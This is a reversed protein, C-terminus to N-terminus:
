RVLSCVFLYWRWDGADALMLFVCVRLCIIFLLVVSAPTFMELLPVVCACVCVCNVFAVVFSALLFLLFSNALLVSPSSPVCLLVIPLVFAVLQLLVVCACALLVFLVFASVLCVFGFLVAAHRSYGLLSLFCVLARALALLFLFPLTRSRFPSIIACSNARLIVRCCSLGKIDAPYFQARLRARLACAGFSCM